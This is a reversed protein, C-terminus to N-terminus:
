LKPGEGVDGIKVVVKGFHGQGELYAYAETLEELRFTKGDIVPRLGTVKIAKNMEEFTVRSGVFVRRTACMINHLDAGAERKRGGITGIIAIEGDIAAAKSSQKLTGPGGVEIIYQAGHGDTLQRVTSGWEPDEKYNIIHQVGLKKLKEAKAPLSTTAIVKAGAKLAFQAAFISVGGTGQTVVTDGIRLPKSGCYLANWATVAACPLTSAEEYSLHTPIPVLSQENFVAYQRLVGDTGGGLSSGIAAPNITGGLWSTAFIPM